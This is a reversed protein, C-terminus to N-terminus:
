IDLLEEFLVKREEVEFFQTLAQGLGLKKEEAILLVDEVESEIEHERRLVAKLGKRLKVSDRLQHEEAPDAVLFKM